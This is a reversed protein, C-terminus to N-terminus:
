AHVGFVKISGTADAVAFADQGFPQNRAAGAHGWCACSLPNRTNEDVSAPDWSAVVAGTSTNFCQVGSGLDGTSVLVHEGDSSVELIGGTKVFSQHHHHHRSSSFLPSSSAPSAMQFPASVGAFASTAKFEGSAEFTAANGDCAIAFIENAACFKANVWRPQKEFNPVSLRSIQGGGGGGGRVGPSSSSSNVRLDCAFLGSTPASALLTTHGSGGAALAVSSVNRAGPAHFTLPAAGFNACRADWVRIASGEGACVLINDDTGTSSSSTAMCDISKNVRLQEFNQVVTGIKEGTALDIQSVGGFKTACYAVRDNLTTGVCSLGKETRILAFPKRSDSAYLRIVDDASAALLSTQGDLWSSPDLFQMSVVNRHVDYTQSMKSTFNRASTSATAEESRRDEELQNQKVDHEQEADKESNKTSTTPAQEADEEDRAVGTAAAAVDREKKVEAKEERVVDDGLPPIADFISAGGLELSRSPDRRLLERQMEAAKAYLKEEKERLAVLTDRLRKRRDQCDLIETKTRRLEASLKEDSSPPQKERENPNGFMEDRSQHPPVYLNTRINGVGGVGGIPTRQNQFIPTRPLPGEGRSVNDNNGGGGRFSAIGNLFAETDMGENTHENPWPVATNALPTPPIGRHAAGDATALRFGPTSASLTGMMQSQQQGFEVVGGYFKAREPQKHWTLNRANVRALIEETADVNEYYTEEKLAAEEEEEEEVDEEEEELAAVAPDLFDLKFGENEDEGDRTGDIVGGRYGGRTVIPSRDDDVWRKHTSQPMITTNAEYEDEKEFEAEERGGGKDLNSDLRMLPSFPPEEFVKDETTTKKSKKKKTSRTKPTRMMATAKKGGGRRGGSKTATTTTFTLTVDELNQMSRLPSMACDEDADEEEIAERELPVVLTTSRTRTTATTENDESTNQHKKRASSRTTARTATTTATAPM